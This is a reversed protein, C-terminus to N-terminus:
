NRDIRGELLRSFGKELVTSNFQCKVKHYKSQMRESEEMGMGAELEGKTQACVM